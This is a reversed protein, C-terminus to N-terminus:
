SFSNLLLIITGVKWIIIPKSLLLLLDGITMVSSSAIYKGYNYQRNNYYINKNCSSHTQTKRVNMRRNNLITRVLASDKGGGRKYRKKIHM